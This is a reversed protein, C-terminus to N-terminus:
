MGTPRASKASKQSLFARLRGLEAGLSYTISSILPSTIVVQGLCESSSCHTGLFYDVFNQPTVANNHHFWVWVEWIAMALPFLFLLRSSLKPLRAGFIFGLVLGVVIPFLFRPAFFYYDLRRTTLIMGLITIGYGAIAAHVSYRIFAVIKPINKEQFIIASARSSM